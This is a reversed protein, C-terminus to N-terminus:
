TEKYVYWDGKDGQRIIVYDKPVRQYECFRLLKILVDSCSFLLCM